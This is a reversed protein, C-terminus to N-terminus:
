TPTGFSYCGTCVWTDDGRYVMPVRKWSYGASRATPRTM